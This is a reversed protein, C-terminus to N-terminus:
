HKMTSPSTHGLRLHWKTFEANETSKDTQQMKEGQSCNGAVYPQNQLYYLGNSLVGTALVQNTASKIIDCGTTHFQVQCENDRALKHISLLNHKFQPVVLVNTLVIGNHLVADGIHTIASADGTPLNITMQTHVARVNSINHVKSTMHDSAGSDIIWSNSNANNALNCTVMESFCAELEEDTESGRLSQVVNGLILKLLHDLQQATFQVESSGSPTQVANNATARTQTKNQVM